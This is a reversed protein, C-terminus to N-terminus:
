ALMSCVDSKRSSTGVSRTTGPSLSCTAGYTYAYIEAVVQLGKGYATDIMALAAPTLALTQATMHCVILGGGAAAVAALQEEIGLIGTTPPNQSSFRGHLSVFRGYKGALQQAGYSEQPTTGDVMYGPVHGIGLAGQKLGEDLLSLIKKIEADTPVQTSWSMDAH